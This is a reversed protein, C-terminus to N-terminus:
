LSYVGDQCTMRPMPLPYAKGAQSIDCTELMHTAYPYVHYICAHM